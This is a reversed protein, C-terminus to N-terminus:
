MAKVLRNVIIKKETSDITYKKEYLISNFRNIAESMESMIAKGNEALEVISQIEGVTDDTKRCLISLQRWADIAPRGDADELFIRIARKACDLGDLTNSVEWLRAIKLWTSQNHRAIYELMPLYSSLLSKNNLIKQSISKM